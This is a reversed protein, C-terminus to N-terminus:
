AAGHKKFWSNLKAWADKADTPNYSDRYDAHFGHGSNPYVVIESKSRGKKLEARMAEVSELPIGEDKAGYLGLVPVTLKAAIDIPMEPQLPNKPANPAAALRGYWAGGAKIRPNHAAYLWVIRGGWCMGTIALKGPNGCASKEAFAVTADLDAMVQEDPVRSVVDNIIQNVDAMKSVDGQRAYLAPAIATRGMKAFRRCIDKVYEHIGFIEQVVLVVPYARRAAPMARYAPIEGDEVPIRVEGAILGESDTTVVSQAAIPQVALAFGVGLSTVLFGRRSLDKSAITATLDEIM